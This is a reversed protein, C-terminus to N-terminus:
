IESYKKIIISGLVYYFFPIDSSHVFIYIKDLYLFSFFYRRREAEAPDSSRNENNDLDYNSFGNNNNNNNNVPNANLTVDSDILIANNNITYKQDVVYNGENDVAPLHLFKRLQCIIILRYIM